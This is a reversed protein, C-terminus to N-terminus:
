HALYIGPAGSMGSRGSSAKEARQAAPIRFSGPVNLILVIHKAILHLSVGAVSKKWENRFISGIFVSQELAAAQQPLLRNQVRQMEPEVAQMVVWTLSCGSFLQLFGEARYTAEAMVRHLESCGLQGFASGIQEDDIDGANSFQMDFSRRDLFVPKLFDRISALDSEVQDSAQKIAQRHLSNHPGCHEKQLMLLALDVATYLALCARSRKNLLCKHALKEGRSVNALFRGIHAAYRSKEGSDIQRTPLQDAQLFAQDTSSHMANFLTLDTM